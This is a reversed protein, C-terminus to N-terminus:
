RERKSSQILMIDNEFLLKPAIDKQFFRYFLKTLINLSSDCLIFSVDDTFIAIRNLERSCYFRLIEGFCMEKEKQNRIEFPLPPPPHPIEMSKKVLLLLLENPSLLKHEKNYFGPYLENM